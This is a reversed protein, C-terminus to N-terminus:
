ILSDKMISGTLYIASVQGDRKVLLFLPVDFYHELVGNFSGHGGGRGWGFRTTKSSLLRGETRLRPKEKREIRLEGTKNRLLLLQTLCCRGREYQVSTECKYPFVLAEFNRM